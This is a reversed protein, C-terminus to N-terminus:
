ADESTISLGGDIVVDIISTDAFTELYIKAPSGVELDIVCRRVMSPEITIVGADYLAQYMGDSWGGVIFKGTRKTNTTPTM